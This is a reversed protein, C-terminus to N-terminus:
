SGVTKRSTSPLLLNHLSRYDIILPAFQHHANGKEIWTFTIVGRRCLEPRFANRKRHRHDSTFGIASAATMLPIRQACAASYRCPSRPPQRMPVRLTMKSSISSQVRSKSLGGTKQNFPNAPVPFVVMACVIASLIKEFPWSPADNKQERSKSSLLM